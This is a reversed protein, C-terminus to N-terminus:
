PVIEYADDLPNQKVERGLELPKGRITATALGDLLKAKGSKNHRARGVILDILAPVDIVVDFTAQRSIDVVAAVQNHSYYEGGREGKLRVKRWRQERNSYRHNPVTFLLKEPKM